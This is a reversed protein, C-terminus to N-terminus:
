PFEVGQTFNIENSSSIGIEIFYTPIRFFIDVMSNSTTSYWSFGYWVYLEVGWAKEKPKNSEVFYDNENM